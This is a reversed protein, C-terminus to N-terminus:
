GFLAAVTDAYEETDGEIERDRLIIQAPREFGRGVGPRFSLAPHQGGGLTRRPHGRQSVGGAGREGGVADHAAKRGDGRAAHRTLEAEATGAEGDGGLFVGAELRELGRDASQLAAFHIRGEGAGDVEAALRAREGARM